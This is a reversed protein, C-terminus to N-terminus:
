RRDAAGPKSGTQAESPSRQDARDRAVAELRKVVGVLVVRAADLEALSNQLADLYQRREQPLLLGEADRQAVVEKGLGITLGHLRVIRAQIHPLQIM